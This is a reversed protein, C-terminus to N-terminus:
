PRGKVLDRLGDRFVQFSRSSNQEVDMHDAIELAAETKALGARHYGHQQLLRELAEATGGTIADPDRLPQRGAANSPVRPYASSIARFDGFFWAELEECAIRNLVARGPGTATLGAAAAMEDLRMRLHHCDDADRDVLVVVRARDVGPYAAYGRLRAPLKKLLDPKGRYVRVVYDVDPLIRPMLAGLAYEASLEEVLIELPLNM